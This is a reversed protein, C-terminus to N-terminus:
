KSGITNESWDKKPQNSKKFVKSFPSLKISLLLIISIVSEINSFYNIPLLDTYKACTNVTKETQKEQQKKMPHWPSHAPSEIDSTDIDLNQSSNTDTQQESAVEPFSSVQCVLCCSLHCIWCVFWVCHITGLATCRCWIKCKKIHENEWTLNLFM